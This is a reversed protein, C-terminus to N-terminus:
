RCPRRCTRIARGSARAPRRAPRSASSRSSTTTWTRAPCSRPRRAPRCARRVERARRDGPLDRRATARRLAAAHQRALLVQQRQHQVREQALQAPLHPQQPDHADRAQSRLQPERLRRGPRGAARRQVAPEFRPFRRGARRHRPGAPPGLHPQSRGQRLAPQGAQRALRRVRERRDDEGPLPADGTLPLWPKMQKGTRPQTVEGARAVWIVLEDANPGPKRQVRNFFAGIGYYNDQTWREFPHNHCKACQIRIGLFVQSTTETCDNTDTATRFYNAPPNDFTSGEATLLERAFQDYPM